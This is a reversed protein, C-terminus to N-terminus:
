LQEGASLVIEKKALSTYSTNGSIFNVGTAVISGDVSKFNIKTVQANTLLQLNPRTSYPGYYANAAYSRIGTVPNV